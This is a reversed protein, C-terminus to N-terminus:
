NVTTCLSKDYIKKFYDAEAQECVVNMGNIWKLLSRYVGGKHDDHHSLSLLATGPPDLNISTRSRNTVDISRDEFVMLGERLTGGEKQIVDLLESRLFEFGEYLPGYVQDPILINIYQPGKKFEEADLGRRNTIPLPIFGKTTPHWVYNTECWREYPGSKAICFNLVAQAPPIPLTKLAKFLLEQKQTEDVSVLIDLSSLSSSSDIM